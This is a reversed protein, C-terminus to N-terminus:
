NPVSAFFARFHGAHAPVTPAALPHTQACCAKNAALLCSFFYRVQMIESKSFRVALAELVQVKTSITAMGSAKTFAHFLQLQAQTTGLSFIMSATQRTDQHRATKTKGISAARKSHQSKAHKPCLTKSSRWCTYVRACTCGGGSGKALLRPAQAAYSAELVSRIWVTQAQISMRARSALWRLKYQPLFKPTQGLTLRLM